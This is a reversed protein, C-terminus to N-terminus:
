ASSPMRSKQIHSSNLRTSKRDEWFSIPIVKPGLYVPGGIDSTQEYDFEPITMTYGNGYVVTEMDLDYKDLMFERDPHMSLTNVVRELQRAIIEDHVNPNPQHTVEVPDISLPDDKLFFSNFSTSVLNEVITFVLPMTPNYKYPHSNPDRFM